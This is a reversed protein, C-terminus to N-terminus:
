RPRWGLPHRKPGVYGPPQEINAGYERVRTEIQAIDRMGAEDQAARADHHWEGTSGGCGPAHFMTAYLSGDAGRRQLKPADCRNCRGAVRCMDGFLDPLYEDGTADIM